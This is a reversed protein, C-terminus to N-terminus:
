PKVEALRTPDTPHLADACIRWADDGAEYAQRIVKLARDREQEMEALPELEDSLWVIQTKGGHLHVHAADELSPWIVTSPHVGFWRVVTVGDEFVAGTAVVGTGSVGTVDQRRYLAFPRPAGKHHGFIASILRNNRTAQLETSLERAAARAADITAILCAAEHASMGLWADPQRLRERVATEVSPQDPTM